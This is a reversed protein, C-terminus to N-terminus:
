GLKWNKTIYAVANHIHISEEATAKISYQRIKEADLTLAVDRVLDEVFKPNEYAKETVYKEDPRKLLPFIECSGQSELLAIIDEVWWLQKNPVVKVTLHARQNHAGYKSIEKSCPCLNTVYVDVQIAFEFVDFVQKAIFTVNCEQPAKFKSVPSTKMTFYPFKVRLYADDAQLKDVMRTLIDDLKHTDWGDAYELLVSLFRSMSIGRSKADINVYADVTANVVNPLTSDADKRMITLPLHVNEVGVREISKGRTDGTNQVDPLQENKPKDM